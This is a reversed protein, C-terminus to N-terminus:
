NICTSVPCFINQRNTKSSIEAGLHGTTDFLLPLANFSFRSILLTLFFFIKSILFANTFQIIKKLFIKKYLTFFVYIFFSTYQAIFPALLLFSFYFIHDKRDLIIFYFLIFLFVYKLLFNLLHFWIFLSGLINM